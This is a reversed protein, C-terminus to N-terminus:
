DPGSDNWMGLHTAGPWRMVGARGSLRMGSLRWTSFLRLHRYSCANRIQCQARLSMNVWRGNIHPGAKADDASQSQKEYEDGQPCPPTEVALHLVIALGETEPQIPKQRVAM